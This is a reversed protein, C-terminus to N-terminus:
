ERGAYEQDDESVSEYRKQKKKTKVQLLKSVSPFDDSSPARPRKIIKTTSNSTKLLPPFDESTPVRQHKIVKTAATGIKLILSLNFLMLFLFSIRLIKPSISATSLYDALDDDSLAMSNWNDEQDSTNEIKVNVQVKKQPTLKPKAPIVKPGDSSDSLDVIRQKGQSRKSKHKIFTDDDSLIM